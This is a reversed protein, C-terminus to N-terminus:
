DPIENKLIVKGGELRFELDKTTPDDKTFRADKLHALIVPYQDVVQKPIPAAPATGMPRSTFNKGDYFLVCLKAGNRNYITVKGQGIESDFEELLKRIKM